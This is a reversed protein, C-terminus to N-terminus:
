HRDDPDGVIFRVQGLEAGDVIVSNLTFKSKMQRTIQVCVEEFRIPLDAFFEFQGVLWKGESPPFLHNNLLKTLAVIMETLTKDKIKNANLSVLMKDKDVKAAQTIALEDYSLRRLAERSSLDKVVWADVTKSGKKIEISAIVKSEEDLQWTFALPGRGFTKFIIKSVWVDKEKNRVHSTVWDFIDASQIYSREGKFHLTMPVM